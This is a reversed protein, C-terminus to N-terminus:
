SAHNESGIFRVGNKVYVNELNAPHLICWDVVIVYIMVVVLFNLLNCIGSDYFLFVVLTYMRTARHFRGFCQAVNTTLPLMGLVCLFVLM